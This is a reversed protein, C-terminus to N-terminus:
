QSTAQHYLFYLYLGLSLSKCKQCVLDASVYYTFVLIHMEEVKGNQFSQKGNTHGWQSYTWSMHMIGTHRMAPWYFCFTTGMRNIVIIWKWEQGVNPLGWGVHFNKLAGSFHFCESLTISFSSVINVLHRKKSVEFICVEEWQSHCYRWM